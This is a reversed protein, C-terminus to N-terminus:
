AAKDLKSQGGGLLGGIQHALDGASEPAEALGALGAAIMKRATVNEQKALMKGLREILAVPSEETSLTSAAKTEVEIEEAPLGSWGSPRGAGYKKEFKVMLEAPPYLKGSKRKIIQYLNQEDAEINAAIVRRAGAENSGTEAMVEEVKKILHDRWNDRFDTMGYELLDSSHFEVLISSM